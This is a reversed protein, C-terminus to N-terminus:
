LRRKTCSQFATIREPICLFEVHTRQLNQIKFAGLQFLIGYLAYVVCANGNTDDVYPYIKLM